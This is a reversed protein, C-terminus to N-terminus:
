GKRKSGLETAIMFVTLLDSPRLNSLAKRTERMIFKRDKAAVIAGYRTVGFGISLLKERTAKARQAM